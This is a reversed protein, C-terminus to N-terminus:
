PRPPGTRFPPLGPRRYRRQRPENGGSKASPGGGGADNLAVLIRRTGAGDDRRVFGPALAQAAIPRELDGVLFIRLNSIV